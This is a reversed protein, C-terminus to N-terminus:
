WVPFYFSSASVAEEFKAEVALHLITRGEHDLGSMMVVDAYEYALLDDLEAKFLDVNLSQLTQVLSRRHISLAAELDASQSYVSVQRPM